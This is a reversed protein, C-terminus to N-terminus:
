RANPMDVIRRFRSTIQRYLDTDITATLSCFSYIELRLFFFFFSFVHSLNLFSM